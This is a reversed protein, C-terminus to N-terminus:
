MKLELDAYIHAREIFSSTWAAWSTSVLSKCFWFWDPSCHSSLSIGPLWILSQKLYITFLLVFSIFIFYYRSQAQYCCMQRACMLFAEFMLLFHGVQKGCAALDMIGLDEMRSLAVTKIVTTKQQFQSLQHKYSAVQFARAKVMVETSSSLQCSM